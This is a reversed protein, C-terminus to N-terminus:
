KIYYTLECVIPVVETYPLIKTMLTGCEISIPFTHGNHDAVMCPKSDYLFTDGVHLNGYMVVPNGKIKNCKIM